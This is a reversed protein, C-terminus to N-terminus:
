VNLGIGSVASGAAATRVQDREAISQDLDVLTQEQDLDHQRRARSDASVTSM